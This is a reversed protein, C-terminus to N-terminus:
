SNVSQKIDEILAVTDLDSGTCNELKKRWPVLTGLSMYEEKLFDVIEPNGYVRDFKKHLAQHVQSALMDAVIYNHWSPLGLYWPSASWKPTNYPRCGTIKSDIEGLVSHLEPGPNQYLEFSFLGFASRQRIFFLWPAVVAKLTVEIESPSMGIDKLWEPYRTFYGFTEALSEASPSPERQFVFEPQSNLASHLGHGLEHFMTSYFTYGDQPNCMILINDRSGVRMCLGNWPIDIYTPKIGLKDMPVGHMNAFAELRPTLQSKPFYSEDLGKGGDLLFQIDWPELEGKLGFEEAKENIVQEYEGQTGDMLRQLLDQANTFGTGQIHLALDGWHAFGAEQSLQNRRQYMAVMDGTLREALDSDCMWARKRRDRDEEYRLIYRIDSITHDEGDVPYNFAMIRDSISERMRIIEPDGEVSQTLIIEQYCELQRRLRPDEVQDKFRDILEPWQPMNFVKALEREMEGIRPNPKKTKMREFSLKSSINSHEEWKAEFEKLFSRLQVEDKIADTKTMLDRM